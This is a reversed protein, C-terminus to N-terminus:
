RRVTKRSAIVVHAGLRSFAFAMEKGLGRSGGTITIVKGTLDGFMDNPRAM